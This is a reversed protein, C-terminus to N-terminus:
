KSRKGNPPATIASELAFTMYSNRSWRGQSRDANLAAVKADIRALLEKPLRLTCAIDKDDPPAAVPAPAVPAAKPRKPQATESVM